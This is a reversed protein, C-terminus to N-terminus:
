KQCLAWWSLGPLSLGVSGLSKTLWNDGSLTTQIMGTTVAGANWQSLGVFPQPGFIKERLVGMARPILLSHFLGGSKLVKLGASELMKKGTQPTYRRFHKLHEDHSSFLSPWAPVSVLVQGDDKLRHSVLDRLFDVDEEVHELVDLLMLMEFTEQPCEKTFSIKPYAESMQKLYHEDYNIDWCMIQLDDFAQGLTHAMFGDGGGIDLLSKAQNDHLAQKLCQGFFQARAVEWPHRQIDASGATEILDL